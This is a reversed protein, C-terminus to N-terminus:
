EGWGAKDAVKACDVFQAGAPNRFPSGCYEMMLAIEEVRIAEPVHKPHFGERFDYTGDPVSASWLDWNPFAEFQMFAAGFYQHVQRAEEATLPFGLCAAEVMLTAIDRGWSEDLCGKGCKAPNRYRDIRITLGELLKKAVEDKGLILALHLANMHFGDVISYNYYNIGGAIEDYMSGQGNGCDFDPLEGTALLAVALRADCEADPIVAVYDMFSALDETQPIFAKGETDKSRIYYGEKVIDDAFGVMYNWTETLAERIGADQTNLMVYPLWATARFMYPLDDKSRLTTVYIEGWYPNNSYLYRDANWGTYEFWWDSFDVAKKKGSPLTFSHNHGTINRAMVFKNPDNEDFEFGKMMATFSLSFQRVVEGAVPDGTLLYGGAAQALALSTPEANNHSGGYDKNHRFTVTDGAKVADVDHWWILYEPYGSSIDMGHNTEYLWNFYDMRKWTGTLAKTFDSIEQPSLAEGAPPRSFEFPLKTPLHCVVDPVGEPCPPPQFTDVADSQDAEVDTRPVVESLDSPILDAGPEVEVADSNPVGDAKTDLTDKSGKSSSCSFNWACLFIGALVVVARNRM